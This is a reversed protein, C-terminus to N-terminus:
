AGQAAASIRRHACRFQGFYDQAIDRLFRATWPRCWRWKQDLKEDAQITRNRPLNVLLLQREFKELQADNEIHTLKERDAEKNQLEQSARSGRLSAASLFSASVFITCLVYRYMM